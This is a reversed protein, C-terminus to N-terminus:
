KTRLTAFYRKDAAVNEPLHLACYGTFYQVKNVAVDMPRNCCNTAYKRITMVM